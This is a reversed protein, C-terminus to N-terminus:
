RDLTCGNRRTKAKWMRTVLSKSRENFRFSVNFHLFNSQCATRPWKKKLM